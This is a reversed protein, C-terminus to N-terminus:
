SGSAKLILLTLTGRPAPAWSRMPSRRPDGPRNRPTVPPRQPSALPGCPDQMIDAPPQLTGLPLRSSPPGAPLQLLVAPLRCPEQLLMAHLSFLIRLLRARLKSVHSLLLNKSIRSEPLEVLVQLPQLRRCSAQSPGQTPGSVIMSVSILTYIRQDQTAPYM